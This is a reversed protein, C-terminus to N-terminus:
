IAYMIHMYSRMYINYIQMYVHMCMDYIYASINNIHM